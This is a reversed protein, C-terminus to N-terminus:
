GLKSMLSQPTILCFALFDLDSFKAQASREEAKALDDDTM